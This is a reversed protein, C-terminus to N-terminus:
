KCMVKTLSDDSNLRANKGFLAATLNLVDTNGNSNVPVITHDVRYTPTYGAGFVKAKENGKKSLGVYIVSGTQRDLGVQEAVFNGLSYAIITERGGSTVYKEWPQLVHPHSGAVISAGAELYRHAYERQYDKPANTYEVGWHPLVVVADVDPRAALTRILPFIQKDECFLVQHNVDPDNIVETCGVFAVNMNKITAIKYFDGNPETSLHSGVTPLNIARAASITKDIGISLRDMAHNNAITLLDLGSDKLDSLVRPHYNFVLNTGSYINDDYIFGVDGHDHGQRDIGMAAPGELNAVSFDAKAFLPLTDKWIQTFHKTNNIVSVYMPKHILIDGTFSLTIQQNSSSCSTSFKLDHPDDALVNLSFLLSCLITTTKM